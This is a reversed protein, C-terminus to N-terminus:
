FIILAKMRVECETVNKFTAQINADVKYRVQPPRNLIQLQKMCGQCVDANMDSDNNVFLTPLAPLVLKKETILCSEKFHGECV